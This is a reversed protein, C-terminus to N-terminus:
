AAAKAAKAAQSRASRITLNRRATLRNIRSTLRHIKQDRYRAATRGPKQPPRDAAKNRRTLDARSM